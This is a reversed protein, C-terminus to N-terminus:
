LLCYVHDEYAIQQTVKKEKEKREKKKKIRLLM